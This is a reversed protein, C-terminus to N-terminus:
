TAEAKGTRAIGDSLSAARVARGYLLSPAKLGAEDHTRDQGKSVERTGGGERRDHYSDSSYDDGYINNSPVIGPLFSLLRYIDAM